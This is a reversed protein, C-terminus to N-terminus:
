YFKLLMKKDFNKEFQIQSFVELGGIYSGQIDTDDDIFAVPNYENSIDLAISLQRGAAGAGYVMVNTTESIKLSNILWRAFMRVSCVAIIAFMWNILIVSRPIGEVALMFTFIGWLLAYLTVAQFIAWIADFGIYRIVSRYLGFHFFFPAAFAPSIILLWLLDKDPWYWYGLRISFASILVLFLFVLDILLFILQKKTRSLNLLKNIM